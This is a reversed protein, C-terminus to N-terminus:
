FRAEIKLFCNTIISAIKKILNFDYDLDNQFYLMIQTAGNPFEFLEPYKEAHDIFLEVVSYPTMKLEDKIVDKM